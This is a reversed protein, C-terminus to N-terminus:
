AEMFTLTVLPLKDDESSLSYNALIVSYEEVFDNDSFTLKLNFRHNNSLSKKRLNRLKVGLGNNKNVVSFEFSLSSTTNISLGQTAKLENTNIIRPQTITANTFVIKKNMFEYAEGDIEVKSIDSINDSLTIIGTIIIQNIFNNGSETMVTPVVPTYYYQHYYEEGYVYYQNHNAKVFDNAVNKDEIIDNTLIMLQIPILQSSVYRTGQQMKVICLTKSGNWNMNLDETIEWEKPLVSKIYKIFNNNM